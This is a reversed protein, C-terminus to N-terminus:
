GLERAREGGLLVFQQRTNVAAQAEFRARGVHVRAVLVVARATTDVQHAGDLLLAQARRGSRKCSVDIAAKTAARALARTRRADLVPLKQFGRACVDRRLLARSPAAKGIAQKMEHKTVHPQMRRTQARRKRERAHQAIRADYAKQEACLQRTEDRRSEFEGERQQL